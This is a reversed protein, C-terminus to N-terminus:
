FPLTVLHLWSVVAEYANAFATHLHPESAVGATIVLAKGTAKAAEDAVIDLKRGAWKAASIMGDRLQHALRKILSISPEPKDFEERLEQVLPNFAEVTVQEQDLEEPPRNHGIGIPRQHDLAQRLSDLADAARKRAAYDDESGFAPGPEDPIDDLSPEPVPEDDNDNDRNIPAWDSIGGKEVENVVEEIWKDPVLGAFKDGIEINADYPGGWIYLYGGEASEYPTAQAPDEYNELFWDIMREIKDAKPLHRFETRSIGRWHTATVLFPRRSRM